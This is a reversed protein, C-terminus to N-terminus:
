PRRAVQGEGGEHVWFLTAGAVAAPMMLINLFPVLLAVYVAGGFGLSQWRTRRLWALMDDFALKHNDAPYDIYQVAMMWIGFLVWLPTAILNVGPIVTLVLLGAARPLFYGLKRLERRLTRPVMAALEGWSFPPFDDRGRAVVEVKEALFGNFPAAILNALLTFTFYILVLVLVVFLPWMLYELFSLWDPLSPMLVEVWHRFQRVAFSVLGIFLALNLSLPLLVFARLGPRLMLKLGEGLYRPGSLAPAPM